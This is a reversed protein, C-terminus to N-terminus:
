NRTRNISQNITSNNPLQSSQKNLDNKWIKVEANFAKNTVEKWVTNRTKANLMWNRWMQEKRMSCQREKWWSRAKRRWSTTRSMPWNAKRLASWWSITWAPCGGVKNCCSARKGTSYKVQPVSCSTKIGVSMIQQKWFRLFQAMIDSSISRLWRVSYM